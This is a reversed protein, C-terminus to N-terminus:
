QWAELSSTFMRGHAMKGFIEQVGSSGVLFCCSKLHNKGWGLMSFCVILWEAMLVHCMTLESIPTPWNAQIKPWAVFIKFCSDSSAVPHIM